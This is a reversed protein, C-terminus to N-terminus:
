IHNKGYLNKPRFISSKIPQNIQNRSIHRLASTTAFALWFMPYFLVSMFTAAIITGLLGVNIGTAVAVISKKEAGGINRVDNCTKINMIFTVGLMIFFLVGGPYGLEVFAQLGTNHIPELADPHYFREYYPIWNQYGIGLPHHEMVDIADKWHQIRLESTSDDGMTNFRELQKEPLFHMALFILASIILIKRFFYKGRFLFFLLVALFALQGGRSSAGLITLAATGPFLLLLVWWRISRQIHERFALLLSMSLSFFVVMELTFEGSNRFWGPPGTLGYSAFSFGRSAFTRAGYLSLKVHMLIFFLTFLLMRNPTTLICVVCYYMLVWSAFTTWYELSVSLNWAFIISLVVIICFIIFLKDLSGFGIAKSRTVFVSIFCSLLSVQGWPIFNLVPYM